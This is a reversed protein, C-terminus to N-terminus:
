DTEMPKKPDLPGKHYHVVMWKGSEDQEEVIHYKLNKEKDYIDTERAIRGSEGAIKEGKKMKKKFKKYGEEKQKLVLMELITASDYAYIIKNRSGCLPCREDEAKIEKGCDRCKIKVM